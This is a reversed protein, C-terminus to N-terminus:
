HKHTQAARMRTALPANSMLQNFSVYLGILALASAATLFFDLLSVSRDVEAQMAIGAIGILALNRTVLAWSLPQSSLGGCGCDIGFRGQLLSLMVAATVLLLLFLGGLAGVGSMEPLLLFVGLIIEVVPLLYAVLPVFRAPIVGYNELAGKFVVPDRLKQWGGVLFLISLAAKSAGAVVPDALFHLLTDM